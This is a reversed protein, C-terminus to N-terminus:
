QPELGQKYYLYAENISMHGVVAMCHQTQRQHRAELRQLDDEYQNKRTQEFNPDIAVPTETCETKTNTWATGQCATKGMGTNYGDCNSPQQVQRCQRHIRYGQTLLASQQGIGQKLSAIQDQRSKFPSSEFCVKAQRESPSMQSFQEQTSACGTAMLLLLAAMAIPRILTKM